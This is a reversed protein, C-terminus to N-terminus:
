GSNTHNNVPLSDSQENSKERCEDTRRLLGPQRRQESVSREDDISSLSTVL